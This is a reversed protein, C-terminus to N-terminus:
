DKRKRRKCYPLTGKAGHNDYCERCKSHRRCKKKPCFCDPACKIKDISHNQDLFNGVVQIFKEEEEIFPFHGSKEFIELQSDMIRDNLEKNMVLPTQPDKRGTCILTPIKVAYVEKRYDYNKINELWKGRIPISNKQDKKEVPFLQVNKKDVFSAKMVINNLQNYTKLNNFGLYIRTGWLRSQWYEKDKWWKWSRHVGYKKQAKWGTTSGVLILNKIRSQNKIAFALACFSGMSHGLFDIPETINFADLTENTCEIMEQMDVKAARTSNYAGPPDFTIVSRGSKLVTKTISDDAISVFTAAHPYPMVFVPAGTGIRYMALNDFIVTPKM